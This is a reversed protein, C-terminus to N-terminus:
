LYNRTNCYRMIMDHTFAFSYCVLWFNLPQWCISVRIVREFDWPRTGSSCVLHQGIWIRLFKALTEYNAQKSDRCGMDMGCHNTLCNQTDWIAGEIEEYNWVNSSIKWSIINM